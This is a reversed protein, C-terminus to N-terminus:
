VIDDGYEAYLTATLSAPSGRVALRFKPAGPDLTFLDLSLGTEVRAYQELMPLETQLFRPVAERAICVPQRYISHLPAPLTRELPWFHGADYIWGTKGAVVYVPVSGAERFPLETHVMLILEGNERDLDMRLVSAMRAANVTVPQERGDVNLPKGAHLSLLNLFDPLTLDLRGKAPGESIDELVFLISDDQRNLLYPVDTPLRDIREVRGDCELACALPVRGQPVSDAWNRALFLQLRAPVAGPEDRSVRRLYRSEDVVALRAARRTEELAKREREPDSHRRILALGLAVVHGCIIGREVNDRCPCQNDVAGGPLLEFQSTLGRTGHALEGRVFPPEFEVKQVRGADFMAQGERFVQPGAWDMLMKQTLPLNM